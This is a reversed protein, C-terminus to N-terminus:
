ANRRTDNKVEFCVSNFKGKIGRLLIKTHQSHIEVREVYYPNNELLVKRPDDNSGWNIQEQTCGIYHVVDGRKFNM